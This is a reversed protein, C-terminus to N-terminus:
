HHPLPSRDVTILGLNELTGWIKDASEEPRERSSDVRVDPDLPPEYPDSIGTFNAIEGALAKRYLGKVDRAALVPIPCDVHVEVFNPIRRRLEERVARYPSIAAAMAIAGNRALLECVYGIRRINTDRDEKSFGLGKSLHTRVEDGDLLEVKAGAERFRKLLIESITSKGAGSLGTFWLVFGEHRRAVVDQLLVDVHRRANGNAAFHIGCEKPADLEWWWRGAREDEGPAVARTCPACGISAYGQDYLPHRPVDHRRIYDEVQERTWAALPSLKLLGDREEVTNLEARSEAQDRRLGVAWARFEKLKRELPRVKRVECCLMRLPVDRHFLNPGHREVMAQVESPDPAVVEVRIGYRERVRDVMHHTEEPLRGTDVTIVRVDPSMRAAMDVLVMGELQFATSICFNRGYTKLAWDLLEQAPM